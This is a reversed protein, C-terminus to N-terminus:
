MEKSKSDFFKNALPQLVLCVGAVVVLIPWSNFFTLGWLHESAAYFWAAFAVQGLGDMFQKGDAPLIMNNLGFILLIVPWWTWLMSVELMDERNMLFAVGAAVILLGWLIQKRTQQMGNKM